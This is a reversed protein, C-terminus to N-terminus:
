WDRKNGKTYTKKIDTKVFGEQMKKDKDMIQKLVTPISIMKRQKAIEGEKEKLNQNKKMKEDSDDPSNEQKKQADNSHKMQNDSKQKGKEQDNDGKQNDTDKKDNKQNQENSSKNNQNEQEKKEKKDDGKNGQNNKENEKAMLFIINKRLKSLMDKSKVDAGHNLRKGLYLAEVAGEEFKNNMMLVTVYNFYIDNEQDFNKLGVERYLKESDEYNKEHIFFEALKLKNIKSISGRKLQDLLDQKFPDNAALTIKAFVMLCIVIMKTSFTRSLSLLSSLAILVISVIVVYHGWVPRVQINKDALKKEYNKSFFDVIEETPLDMTGILWIKADLVEKSLFEMFNTDLKTIVKDNHYTKYRYFNGEPSRIPIPAGEKTGAGVLGLVINEPITLSFREQNEFDSFILMNGQSGKVSQPFYHAAEVISRKIDSGGSINKVLLLSSLRSDLLEIDDTFPIIQRQTDSFVVISIQHGLAKKIFHRALVISKELRSPRIDEAMMSLSMDIMIITQQDKISVKAEEVPGRLDLTSFILGTYGLLLFFTGVYSKFSRDFFWYKKVWQFYRKEHLLIAFIFILMIAIVYKVHAVYLISL